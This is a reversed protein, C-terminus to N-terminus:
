STGMASMLPHPVLLRAGIAGRVQELILAEVDGADEAEVLAAIARVADEVRCGGEFQRLVAHQLESLPGEEVGGPALRLFQYWSSPGEELNHLWAAPQEASWDWRSEHFVVDSDFFLERHLLEPPELTLLPATDDELVMTRVFVLGHSKADRDVQARREELAFVDAVQPAELEHVGATFEQLTKGSGLGHHLEVLLARTRRFQKDVITDLIEEKAVDLTHESRSAVSPALITAAPRGLLADRLWLYFAGIGADGNMLSTDLQERLAGAFGSFYAGRTTYQEIGHRAAAAAPELWSRDHRAMGLFLIANGGVGHCLIEATNMRMLHPQTAATVSAALATQRRFAEDGTLEWARLRSLGIGMAGHCWATMVASVTFPEENGRRLEDQLQVLAEARKLVSLAQFRFDPWNQAAESFRAQEYRYAETALVRCAESGFHHFAEFLAFGIGAAGHAMGCLGRTQIMKREWYLGQDATWATAALSRVLSAITRRTGPAPQREHLHVLGLLTGATGIFLDAAESQLDQLSEGLEAAWADYASDDGAAEATRVLVHILGATGLYFGARPSARFTAVARQLAPRIADLFRRDATHRYLELLFLAIGASGDYLGPSDQMKPTGNGDITLTEWFVGAADERQTALFREGIRIAEALLDHETVTTM